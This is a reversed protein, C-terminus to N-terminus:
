AKSGPAYDIKLVRVSPNDFVVKYHQPDVKVPDQALAPVSWLLILAFPLAKCAKM